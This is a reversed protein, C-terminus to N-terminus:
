ANAMIKDDVLSAPFGLRIVGIARDGDHLPVAVDFYERGDFRQYLQWFPERAQAAQKSVGDEFVRGILEPENHFVVEGNPKMIGAYAIHPNMAVVERLSENVGSLWELPQGGALQDELLSELSRGVGIVGTLLADTYNRRFNAINVLSSIVLSVALIGITFILIKRNM